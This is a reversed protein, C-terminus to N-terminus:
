PHCDSDYKVPEKNLVATWKKALADGGLGSIKELSKRAADISKQARGKKECFCRTEALHGLGTELPKKLAKQLCKNSRRYDKALWKLSPLVRRPMNCGGFDHRRDIWIPFLQFRIADAAQLVRREPAKRPLRAGLQRARVNVTTGESFVLFELAQAEAELRPIVLFARDWEQEWRKSFFVGQLESALTTAAPILECVTSVRTAQRVREGFRRIKKLSAVDVDVWAAEEATVRRRVGRGDKAGASVDFIPAADDMLKSFVFGTARNSLRVPTWQLNDTKEADFSSIDGLDITGVKAAKSTAGQRVNLEDGAAWRITSSTFRAFVPDFTASIARGEATASLLLNGDPAALKSAHRRPFRGLWHLRARPRLQRERQAKPAFFIEVFAHDDVEPTSILLGFGAPNQRTEGKQFTVGARMQSIDGTPSEAEVDSPVAQRVLLEGTKKLRLEVYRVTIKKKRPPLVDRVLPGKVLAWTVADKKGDGDVDFTHTQKKFAGLTSFLFASAPAPEFAAGFDAALCTKMEARAKDDLAPSGSRGELTGAGVWVLGGGRLAYAYPIDLATANFGADKLARDQTDGGSPFCKSNSLAGSPSLTGVLSPGRIIKVQKKDSYDGKAVRASLVRSASFINGCGSCYEVVVQGSIAAAISTAAKEEVDWYRDALLPGSGLVVAILAAAFASSALRRHHRRSFAFTAPSNM